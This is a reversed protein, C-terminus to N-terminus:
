VRFAHGQWTNSAYFKNTSIAAKFHPTGQYDLWFLNVNDRASNHFQIKTQKASQSEISKLNGKGIPCLILSQDLDQYEALILESGPITPTYHRIRVMRKSKQLATCGLVLLFIIVM